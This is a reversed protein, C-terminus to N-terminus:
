AAAEGAPTEEEGLLLWAPDVGLAAALKRITGQQPRVGYRDNEIRSITRLPIGARRGLEDQTWVRRLRARRLREGITSM